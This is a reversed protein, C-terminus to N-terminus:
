LVNMCKWFIFFYFIFTLFICKKAFQSFKHSVGLLHGFCFQACKHVLKNRLKCVRHLVQKEYSIVTKEHLIAIEVLFATKKIKIKEFSSTSRAPTYILRLNQCKSFCKTCMWIKASTCKRGSVGFELNRFFAILPGRSSIKLNYIKSTYRHINTVKQFISFNTGRLWNCIRTSRQWKKPWKQM